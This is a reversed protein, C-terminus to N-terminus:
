HVSRHTAQPKGKSVQRWRARAQQRSNPLDPMNLGMIVNQAMVRWTSVFIYIQAPVWLVLQVLVALGIVVYAACKALRVIM